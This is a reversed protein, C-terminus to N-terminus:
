YDNENELLGKETFDEILRTVDKALVERPADFQRSLEDVIEEFCVGKKLLEFIVAATDSLKVVGQFESASEGVPVAVIWDDLQMTEFDYKLRM